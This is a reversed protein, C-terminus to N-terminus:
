SAGQAIERVKRLDVKGSGLLPIAEIKRFADRKPVWLNPLGEAALKELVEPIRDEPLTHVVALREGKAEDPLGTVCFVQESSGVARHLADEVKIHPVMEGGIKSFRSLRDTIEVFGDEDVRAIDGTVYWGDRIVEATKAPNGLYGKMVNPGKVLLLGQEGQPLPAGTDTSVIKVSVGPLPHGIRGRKHGVQRFGRARFDPVNVAVIPSCETCGYGELAVIGFKEEFADAVRDTLKEAGVVVNKVSGLDGPECRRTYAQLFTPTALLFTAGFERALWGVTRADLPNVHYVVGCPALLPLWLTGTFGFSHFFPLIGLIVDGPGPEFLQSLAQLNSTVNAHTLMVGKPEGTSGSSFIITAVDDMAASRERGCYRELGGATSFLAKAVAKRRDAATITPRVDEILVIRGPLDLKLKDLFAKSTLVSTLGCQKAASALSEANATYNLNVPVKGALLAAINAAAGAVSPPLCIGVMPDKVEGGPVPAADAWHPRMARAIAVAMVLIRRLPVKEPKGGEPISATDSMGFADPHARAQRLFARHLPEAEDKRLAFAATGLEQIAQRVVPAEATHPLPPGFSVTVRYPIRRPMKWVYKRGSFSFLSGWVRDLHVPVIPIDLDRVIREFGKRFPLMQGTRTLEGEPFICVLDGAKLAETATKLATMVQKPGEEVSIPIVRLARTIPRIWRGEVIQKYAIFRVPRSLSAILLLGDVFSVHNCVLLAGGREPVRDGDVVRIRYVTHTLLWLVLRVMAEPLMACIALAVAVTVAGAVIFLKDPPLNLMSPDALVWYFAAALLMASFTLVNSAALIRGKAEPPSRQQLTASLPVIFFGGSVGMAALALLSLAFSGGTAGLALTFVAMGLGGLPVLGLEIRRGSLVGAGFSGAAVGVAVSALLWGSKMSDVHLVHKGFHPTNSTLLIGLFWLYAIGVVVRSLVRDRFLERLSSGMEAFANRTGTGAPAAPPVRPVAVTAAAGAVAIGTLIVGIVAPSSAFTEVMMGAAVTGGLIGLFTTMEIIGNGWSLRDPPLIEPLIGYKAPSYFAAQTALVFLVAMLGVTSGQAFALITTGLIAIEALKWALLVSRKSFRDALIGAHASFLIYPLTFLAQSVAILTKEGSDGAALKGAMLLLVTKFGNDNFAGLSQGAVLGWFGPPVGARRGTEPPDQPM